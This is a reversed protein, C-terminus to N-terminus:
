FLEGEDPADILFECGHCGIKGAKGLEKVLDSAAFFVPLPYSPIIFKFAPEGEIDKDPVDSICKGIGNYSLTIEDPDGVFNVMYIYNKKPTM